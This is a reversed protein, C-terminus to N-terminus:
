NLELVAPHEVAVYGQLGPSALPIGIVCVCVCVCVCVHLYGHVCVCLCLGTRCAAVHMRCLLCVFLYVHVCLGHQVQECVCVCVCVHHRPCLVHLRFQLAKLLMVAHSRRLDTVLMLVCSQLM